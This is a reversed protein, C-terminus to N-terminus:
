DIGLGVGEIRKTIREALWPAVAWLDTWGFSAWRRGQSHLIANEFAQLDSAEPVTGRHSLEAEHSPYLQAAILVPGIWVRDDDNPEIFVTEQEGLSTLRVGHGGRQWRWDRGGPTYNPYAGHERHPTPHRMTSHEHCVGHTRCLEPSECNSSSMLSTPQESNSPVAAPPLPHSPMDPSQETSPSSQMSAVVDLSESPSRARSSSRAKRGLFRMLLKRDRSSGTLESGLSAADQPSPSASDRSRSRFLAALAASANSRSSHSVSVSRVRSASEPLCPSETQISTGPSNVRISPEARASSHDQDTLSSTESLSGAEKHPDSVGPPHLLLRANRNVLCSTPRHLVGLVVVRVDILRVLLRASTPFHALNSNVKMNHFVDVPNFTRSFAHCSNAHGTKNLTMYNTWAESTTCTSNSRHHVTFLTKMFAEKWKGDKRIKTWSPLFRRKFAEEYQSETLKPLTAQFLLFHPSAFCMIELWNHRPVTSLVSLNSLEDPSSRELSHIIPSIWPNLVPNSVVARLRTSVNSAQRLSNIDLLSLITAILEVPLDELQLPAM